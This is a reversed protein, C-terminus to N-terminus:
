CDKSDNSADQDVIDGGPLMMDSNDDDPIGRSDFNRDARGDSFGDNKRVVVSAERHNKALKSFKPGFYVSLNAIVDLCLIIGIINDDIDIVVITDHSYYIIMRFLLFMFSVYAMNGLAKSENFKQVVNRSQFALVSACFICFVEWIHVLVTWFRYTSSCSELFEVEGKSKITLKFEVSKERPDVLTWCLLYVCCLSVIAGVRLLLTSQTIKTRKMKKANQMLKNIASIKLVLPVNGLTYGILELWERTM